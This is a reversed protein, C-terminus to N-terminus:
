MGSLASRERIDSWRVTLAYLVLINMALVALAWLPYQSSGVFGLEIFFNLSGAIITFWRAWGAGSLLAFGALAVIIGWFLTIWGWTTLDFLIIQQPTLVYYRDRIVAILGQFFDLFGMVIMLLAAFGVWGSWFGSSEM